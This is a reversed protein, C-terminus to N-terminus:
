QFLKKHGSMMEFETSVLGNVTPRPIKAAGSDPTSHDIKDAAVRIDTAGRRM